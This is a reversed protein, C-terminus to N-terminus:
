SPPSAMIHNTGKYFSVDSLNSVRERERGRERERERERQAKVDKIDLYLLFTAMQLVPLSDESSSLWAPVSIGM